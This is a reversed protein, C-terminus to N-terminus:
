LSAQPPGLAAGVFGINVRKSFGIFIRNLGWGDGRALYNNLVLYGRKNIKREGKTRAPAKEEFKHPVRRPM